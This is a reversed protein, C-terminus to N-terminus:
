PKQSLPTADYIMVAGDPGNTALHHGDPSFVVRGEGKLTLLEQGTQADWVTVEGAVGALRKGDPSFAVSQVTDTHGKLSLLPQGTQADWVKVGGRGASALRKSDSSFVVSRLAGPGELTLLEQGTQAEWVKVTNGFHDASALRKGDPSFTVSALAGAQLALLEQGTQADWVKVEARQNPIPGPGSALRKGDPSFAVSGFRGEITLLEQGTQADWVKADNWTASALRKGDPSFAVSRVLVTHGKLTLTPQGTQADRVTVTNDASASALRRFDPSFAVSGDGAGRLTLPEQDKHADWVKVTKDASSSALRQGDPSFVVSGGGGKLTRIEQGTQLDWIRLTGRSSGSVLRQGDPSFSVSSAGRDKLSLLEQGTQADWVTVEGAVGALRKGDPSFALGWVNGKLFLSQQGTQADWVRVTKDESASALRKGDPSFAVSWIMDTHGKLTLLEQGTQADWVKVRNGTSASALRKGDPSFVVSNSGGKLTLLEQGTQADWVKVEDSTVSFHRTASALRKGDPSYAVSSVALTHGRLTLLEQGTQADWVKVTTDGSGSALRKGDPSYAVSHINGTHGQLTLLNSHCQRHLYRWEFHRLDTEGVKPRLQELLERAREVNGAEWAHQALNMNSAYLTRRLEDKAAQLAQNAKRVEDREQQAAQENKQAVDRQRAAEDEANTARVAQWTSIITGVLLLGIFAAATALAPKHKRALKRLRYGVTPPCAEVADGKLYREVDRALGAAMDYRRTRDKELAKMVVWDLEGRVLRALNDPDSQRVAAITAKSQSTSLRTSPRPPEQERVLRLVEDLAAKKLREPEFPPSGALLEYLLVGLSYVDARTDVDLANFTAQEPAMYAPTGVLAGFGTYLTKETLRQGVAKAVGFDIVKPVPRDDYMEVLVNSPKIDRHIVGKQHAHQIAQCVPVFLELRQRPSLKRIDCYETIPTGKVLEMVFYPRGVSGRGDPLPGSGGSVSTRPESEGITGADLVRAINPHNMLALAQREAEFRALVARSDMGPKIVKLAVRRRIPEQQEAVWVEGMGGEGIKELLKYPGIWTGPRELAPPEDITAVPASGNLFGGAQGNAQLLREVHRRLEADPGCAEDLYAALEEPTAKTLASTFISEVATVNKM